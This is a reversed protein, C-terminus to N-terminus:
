PCVLAEPVVMAGFFAKRGSLPTVHRWASTGGPGPLWEEVTALDRWGGAFYRGGLALLREGGAAAPLVVLQFYRRAQQLEPGATISKSVVNIVETTKLHRGGGYGGAVVVLGQTAACAQSSRASLLDPWTGAPRWGLASLPGAVRTDFERVHNDRIIILQWESISVACGGSSMDIPVAPGEEWQRSGLQLVEMSRRAARSQGGILFAAGSLSAVAAGSRGVLYRGKSLSGLVGPLWGSGPRLVLCDNSYGTAVIGGCTAVDGSPALFTVHGHRGEPLAPVSSCASPGYVEVSSLRSGSYGGTLLLTQPGSPRVM